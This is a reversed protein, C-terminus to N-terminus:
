MRVMENLYKVRVSRFGVFPFNKGVVLLMEVMIVGNPSLSIIFEYMRYCQAIKFSIFPFLLPVVPIYSYFVTCLVM